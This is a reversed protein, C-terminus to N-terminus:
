AFIKEAMQDSFPGLYDGQTENRDHKIEVLVNSKQPTQEIVDTMNPEIPMILDKPEPDAYIRAAMTDSADQETVIADYFPEDTFDLPNEANEPEKLVEVISRMSDSIKTM